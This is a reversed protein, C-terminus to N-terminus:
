FINFMDNSDFLSIYDNDAVIIHDVLKIGLPEITEHIRKTTTIDTPSPVALGEPHNHALIVGVAGCRLAEEVILRISIYSANVTGELITKSKIVKSKSDLCVLYVIEKTKGIFKPKLFDGMKKTTNLIVGDKYKTDFYAMSFAPIAKLFVAVAEGVGEVKLLEEYDADFVGALDGFKEILKHALVNTDKRPIAYYLLLEIIEHQQFQEIGEKIFREKLRKRHGAHYNTSM